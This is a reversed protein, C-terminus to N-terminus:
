ANEKETNKDKRMEQYKELYPNIEKDTPNFSLKGQKIFGRINKSGLFIRGDNYVTIYYTGDDLSFITYTNKSDKKYEISKARICREVLMQLTAAIELLFDSFTAM